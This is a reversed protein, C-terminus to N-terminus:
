QVVTNATRITNGSQAVGGETVTVSAGGSGGSNSCTISYTTTATMTIPSTTGGAAPTVTGVGNDIVASTPTNSCTWSLTFTSGPKVVALSSTFSTVVPATAGGSVGTGSLTVASTSTGPATANVNVAASKVGTTTPAFAVLVTCTAGAAITTHCNDATISYQGSDTGSLTSAGYTCNNVASACTNTVTQSASTTNTTQNGFALTSVDEAGWPGTDLSHPYTAPTYYASWTNSSCTYLKGDSTSFYGVHDTCTPYTAGLQALTLSGTGTGSTANFSIPTCTTGNSTTGIFIDRDAAVLNPQYAFVTSSPPKSIASCDSNWEYIPELAQRPWTASGLTSNTVSPFQGSLLDGQGRGPQDMAPYGFGDTNGDWVSGVQFNYTGPTVASQLILSTTSAVSSIRCLTTQRSCITATGNSLNFMQGVTWGTNFTDGSAWTVTVGDGSVTATGNAVPTPGSFGWGTPTAQESYTSNDYRMAHTSIVEAFGSASGTGTGGLKNDHYVGTGSSAFFTESIRDSSSNANYHNGYIEWARCGRIRSGQTPHTQSATSPGVMNLANYRLVFSGGNVCDNAIGNNIVVDEMTMFNTGGLGTAAHWAQDGDHDTEGNCDGQNYARFSNNVGGSPNNVISHDFVGYTCGDFELPSGNNNPSYTTTDITIHDVRVSASQGSIVVIGNFKANSTSITGGRVSLKSFRATTSAATTLQFLSGSSAYDDIIITQDGGGMANTGEGQITFNVGAPMTRLVHTTWHCTGAPITLVTNNTDISNIAAQVDTSGCSLASCSTVGACQGFALAPLLLLALILAM